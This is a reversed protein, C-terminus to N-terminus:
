LAPHWTETINLSPFNISVEPFVPPSEPHCSIFYKENDYICFVPYSSEAARLLPLIENLSQNLDVLSDCADRRRRPPLIQNQPVGNNHLKPWYTTVKGILYLMIQYDVSRLFPATYSVKMPFSAKVLIDGSDVTSSAILRTPTYTSQNELITYAIPAWGRGHPLASSHFIVINPTLLAEPIIKRYSFPVIITFYNPNEPFSTTITVDFQSLPLLRSLYSSEPIEDYSNFILCIKNSKM